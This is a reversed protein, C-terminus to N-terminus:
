LIGLDSRMFDIAYELSDQLYDMICKQNKDYLYLYIGVEPLDKKIIVFRIKLRNPELEVRYTDDKLIEVEKVAEFGEENQFKRKVCLVVSHLQFAWAEEEPVPKSSIRFIQEDLQRAEVPRWCDVGENRLYVYITKKM